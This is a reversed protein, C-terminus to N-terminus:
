LNNLKELIAEAQENLNSFQEEFNIEDFKNDIHKKIDTKACCIDCCLHDKADEIHHHIGKIEEKLGENNTGINEIIETKATDIKEIIEDKANDTNEIVETKATDVDDCLHEKAEEIHTHVDDMENNITTEIRQILEDEDIDIDSFKADFYAKWIRDRPILPVNDRFKWGRYDMKIDTKKM